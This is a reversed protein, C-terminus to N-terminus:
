VLEVTEQEDSTMEIQFKLKRAGLVKFIKLVNEITTGTQGKEIKSIQAKQVGILEGLAEQTFNREKRWKKINEGLIAMSAREEFAERKETGKDGYHKSLMEDLSKARNEKNSKNM